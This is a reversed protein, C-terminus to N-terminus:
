RTGLDIAERRVKNKQFPIQGYDPYRTILNTKKRSTLLTDIKGLQHALSKRTNEAFNYEFTRELDHTDDLQPRAPIELKKLDELLKAHKSALDKSPVRGLKNGIGKLLSYIGAQGSPDIKNIPDATCYAYSNLGGAHFPSLADPPMFRMLTPDYSRRGSGLLYLRTDPEVPYGAFGARNAGMPGDGFPAYNRSGFGIFLASFLTDTAILQSDIRSGSM